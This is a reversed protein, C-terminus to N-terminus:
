SIKKVLESYKRAVPVILAQPQLHFKYGQANGTVNEVKNLNVIFSRHCRVIDESNIQKELRTLSSRLLEKKVTDSDRYHIVAYNDASEIFLLDSESVSFTDKENEAVLEIKSITAPETHHKVAVPRQYKKLQYIYNTLVAFSIPFVGILVVTFVSWLFNKLEFATTLIAVQYLFNGTAIILLLASITLIERRVTWSEENFFKPFLPMAVTRVLFGSTATILGFGILYYIKNPDSWDRIGFPQFATLFFIIFAGEGLSRFLKQRVTDTWNDCPYPQTFIDIVKDM